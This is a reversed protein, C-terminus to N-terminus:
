NSAIFITLIKYLFPPVNMFLLHLSSCRMKCCLKPLNHIHFLCCACFFYPLFYPFHRVASNSFRFKLTKCFLFKINEWTIKLLRSNCGTNRPFGWFRPSLSIFIHAVQGKPPSRGSISSCQSFSVLIHSLPVSVKRPLSTRLSM